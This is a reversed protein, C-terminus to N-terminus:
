LVYVHRIFIKYYVFIIIMTIIGTANLLLYITESYYAMVFPFFCFSLIIWSCKIDFYGVKKIGDVKILFTGIFYIIFIILMMGVIGYNLIYEFITAVNGGYNLNGLYVFNPTEIKNNSIFFYTSSEVYKLKVNLVAIPSGLYYSVYNFFSSSQSLEVNSTKILKRVGYAIFIIIAIPFLKKIKFFDNHKEKVKEKVKEKEKSVLLMYDFFGASFLRLIETRSASFIIMVMACFILTIFSMNNKIKDKLIFCNNIVVFMSVYAVALVIKFTQRILPNMLVSSTNDSYAKKMYAFANVSTGGNLLGVKYADLGYLLTFIIVAVITVFMFSKDVRIIKGNEISRGRKKQSEKRLVVNFKLAVISGIIMAILGSVITIITYKSIQLEWTKINIWASLTGIFVVISSVVSPIIPNKKFIYMNLIVMLAEFFLLFYYNQM